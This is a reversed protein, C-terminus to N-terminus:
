MKYINLQQQNIESSTAATVDRTQTPFTQKYTQTVDDARAHLSRPLCSGHRNIKHSLLM